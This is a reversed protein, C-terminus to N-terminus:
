VLSADFLNHGTQGSTDEWVLGCVWDVLCHDVIPGRVVRVKAVGVGFTHNIDQVSAVGFLMAQFIGRHDWGINKSWVIVEVNVISM